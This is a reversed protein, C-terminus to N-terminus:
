CLYQLPMLNLPSPHTGEETAGAWGSPWAETPTSSECFVQDPRSWCSTPSVLLQHHPPPPLLGETIAGLVPSGSPLFSFNSDQWITHFGDQLAKSAPKCLQNANAIETHGGALM